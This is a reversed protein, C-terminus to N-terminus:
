IFFIIRALDSRFKLNKEQNIYSFKDFLTGKAEETPIYKKIIINNHQPVKNKSLEYTKYDLWVWLKTKELNQTKLYSNICLIQKRDLNVMGICM